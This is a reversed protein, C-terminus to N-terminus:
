GVDSRPPSPALLWSVLPSRRMPRGRDNLLGSHTPVSSMVRRLGVDAGLTELCFLADVTTIGAIAGPKRQWRHYLDDYWLQTVDGRVARVSVGELVAKRALLTGENFRDDYILLDLPGRSLLDAGAMERPQASSIALPVMGAAITALFFRRRSIKM